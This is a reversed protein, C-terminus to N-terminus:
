GAGDEAKLVRLGAAYDPHTWPRAGLIRYRVVGRKDIIVTTPIPGIEFARLALRRPDLLIPVRIGREGVFRKLGAADAVDLNVAYLLIGDGRVAEWLRDLDPMEATCPGCWTAWFNLVVVKGRLAALDLSGGELDALVVGPALM